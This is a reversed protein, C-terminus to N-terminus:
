SRNLHVRGVKVDRSKATSSLAALVHVFHLSRHPNNVFRTSNHHGTLGLSALPTIALERDFHELCLQIFNLLVFLASLDVALIAFFTVHRPTALDPGINELWILHHFIM